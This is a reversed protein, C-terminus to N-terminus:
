KHVAKLLTNNEYNDQEGKENAPVVIVRTPMQKAEYNEGANAAVKNAEAMLAQSMETSHLLKAVGSRDLEFYFSSM